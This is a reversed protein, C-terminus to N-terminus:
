GFIEQYIRAYCIGWKENHCNELNEWGAMCHAWEHMLTDKQICLEHDKNLRILYHDANEQVDGYLRDGSNRDSLPMKCTRVRVPRDVPFKERLLDSFQKLTLMLVAGVIM